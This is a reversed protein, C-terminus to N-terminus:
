KNIQGVSFVGYDFYQPVVGELRFVRVVRQTNGSIGVSTLQKAQIPLVGSTPRVAFPQATNNYLLRARLLILKSLCTSNGCLYTSSVDISQQCMFTKPTPSLSTSIAPSSPCTTVATFGNSRTNADQDLLYKKSQYANLSDQYVVTIEIAPKNIGTIGPEGWYIDLTGGAYAVALDSPRALWVQALEEKVLPLYELAQTAAPADEVQVKDITSNNGLDIPVSISAGSQIAKEIGAEAASFARSSQEVQTSTSIDSLSHQIISVGIALAVTMVLILILIVQGKENVM